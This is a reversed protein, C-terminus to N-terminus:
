RMVTHPEPEFAAPDASPSFSESTFQVRLTRSFVSPDPPAPLPSATQIARVLSLQWSPDGPCDELEIERVSGDKDQVIRARCEFRGSALPMRPRLWARDVRATIQGIYRGFMLARGPEVAGSVAVPSADQEDAEKDSLAVLRPLPIDPAAVPMLLSRGSPMSLPAVRPIPGEKTTTDRDDIFSVIIALDDTVARASSGSGEHHPRVQHSAAGLLVPTILLLHLLLSAAAGLISAGSQRRRSELQRALPVDKTQALRLEEGSHVAASNSGGAATIRHIM